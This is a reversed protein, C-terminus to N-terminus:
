GRDARSSNDGASLWDFIQGGDGLGAGHRANRGSVYGDASPLLMTLVLPMIM